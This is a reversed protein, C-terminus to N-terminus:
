KPVKLALLNRILRQAEARTLKGPKLESDLSKIFAFQKPSAMLTHSERRKPKKKLLESAFRELQASKNKM